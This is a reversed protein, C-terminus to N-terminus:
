LTLSFKSKSIQMKALKIWAILTNSLNVRAPRRSSGCFSLLAVQLHKEKMWANGHTGWSKVVFYSNRFNQVLVFVFLNCLKQGSKLAGSVSWFSCNLAHLYSVNSQNECYKGMHFSAAKLAPSSLPLEPVTLDKEEPLNVDNTLVM